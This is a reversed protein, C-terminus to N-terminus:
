LIIVAAAFAGLGAVFAGGSKGLGVGGTPRPVGIGTGTGNIGVGISSTAEIGASATTKTINSQSLGDTPTSGVTGNSTGNSVNFSNGALITVGVSSVVKDADFPNRTAAFTKLADLASTNDTTDLLLQTYRHTNPARNPPSPGFYPAFATVNQANILQFIQVGGVTTATTASTLGLQMWHLLQGTPGCATQPPIDPDVM